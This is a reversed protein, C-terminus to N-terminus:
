RAGDTCGACAAVLNGAEDYVTISVPTGGTFAWLYAVGPLDAPRELRMRRTGAADHLESRLAPATTGRGILVAVVLRQGAPAYRGSPMIATDLRGPTPLFRCRAEEPEAAGGLCWSSEGEPGTDGIWASAGFGVDTRLDSSESRDVPWLPTPDPPTPPLGGGGGSGPVALWLGGAAAGALVVSGFVHRLRRLAARRRVRRALNPPLPRYPFEPPEPVEEADAAGPPSVTVSM